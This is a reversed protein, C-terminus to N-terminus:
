LQFIFHLSLLLAGDGLRRLEFAIGFADVFFLCPHGTEVFAAVLVGEETELALVLRALFHM